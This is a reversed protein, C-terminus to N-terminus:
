NLHLGRCGGIVFCIRYVRKYEAEVTRGSRKFAGSFGDKGSDLYLRSYVAFPTPLAIRLKNELRRLIPRESLIVSYPKGGSKERIVQPYVRFATKGDSLEARANALGLKVYIWFVAGDLPDKKGDLSRM